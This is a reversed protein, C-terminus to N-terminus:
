TGVLLNFSDIDMNTIWLINKNGRLEDLCTEHGLIDLSFSPFIVRNNGLKCFQVYYVCHCGNSKFFICQYRDKCSM